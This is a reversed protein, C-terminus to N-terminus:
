TASGSNRQNRQKQIATWVRVEYGLKLGLRKLDDREVLQLVDEMSFREQIFKMVSEEDLGINELWRVMEPDGDDKALVKSSSSSGDTGMQGNKILSLVLGCCRMEQEMLAKVLSNATDEKHVPLTGLQDFVRGLVDGNPLTSGAQKQASRISATTSVGSTVSSARDEEEEINHGIINAALEPSLISIAAQCCQKLLNDLAFMWHPKINQRKLIEGVSHQFVFLATQLQNLANGDYDLSEKLQALVKSLQIKNQEPLFSIMGALLQALHEENLLLVSSGMNAQIKDMWIKLLQDKDDQLVKVITQRRQSDKKLLYFGKFEEIGNQPGGGVPPSILASSIELPTVFNTLSNTLEDHEDNSDLDFDECASWAGPEDYCDWCHVRMLSWRLERPGPGLPDREEPSGETPTTSSSEFM